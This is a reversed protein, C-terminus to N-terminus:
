AGFRFSCGVTASWDGFVKGSGSASSASADFSWRRDPSWVLAVRGNAGNGLLTPVGSSRCGVWEAALLWRDSLRFSAALGWVTVDDNSQKKYPNDLVGLGLNAWLHFRGWARSGQLLLYVDSQNTSFDKGAPTIPLKVGLRFGLAAGGDESQWVRFKTWIFFDGIGSNKRDTADVTFRRYLTGSTWIEVNSGVGWRLAIQGHDWLQGTEGTQVSRFGDTYAEGVQLEFGNVPLLHLDETVLPRVDQAHAAAAWLGLAAALTRLSLRQVSRTM